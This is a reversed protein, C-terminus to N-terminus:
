DRPLVPRAGGAPPRRRWRTTWCGASWAGRARSSAACRTGRTRSCCLARSLRSEVEGASRELAEDVTRLREGLRDGDVACGFRLALRYIALVFPLTLSYPVVLV